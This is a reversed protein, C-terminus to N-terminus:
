QDVRLIQFNNSYKKLYIELVGDALFITHLRLLGDPTTLAMLASLAALLQGSTLIYYSRRVFFLM